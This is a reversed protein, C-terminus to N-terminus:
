LDEEENQQIIHNVYAIGEKAQTVVQQLETALDCDEGLLMLQMMMLLNAGTVLHVKDMQLLEMMATNVSGGLLDTIVVVEDAESKQSIATKVQKIVDVDPDVYACYAVLNTQEGMILETASKFGSALAAHTVVIFKRM